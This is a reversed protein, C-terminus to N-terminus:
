SHDPEVRYRGALADLGFEVKRSVSTIRTDSFTAERNQYLHSALMIMAHRIGSPVDESYAGFGATFTIRYARSELGGSALRVTPYAPGNSAQITRFPETYALRYRTVDGAAYAGNEDVVDFTTILDGVLPRMPLEQDQRLSPFFAEFTEPVLCCRGLWGEPGAMFDYAAEIYTELAEDEYTNMIRNQTRLDAVTVIDLKQSITIPTSTRRFEM